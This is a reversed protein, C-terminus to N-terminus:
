VIQSDRFDRLQVHFKIIFSLHDFVARAHRKGKFVYMSVVVNGHTNQLGAGQLIVPNPRPKAHIFDLRAGNIEISRRSSITRSPFYVEQGQGHKRTDRDSWADNTDSHGHGPNDPSPWGVRDMGFKRVTVPRGAQAGPSVRSVWKHRM